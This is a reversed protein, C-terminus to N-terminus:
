RGVNSTDRLAELMQETIAQVRAHQAAALQRLTPVDPRNDVVARLLDQNLAHLTKQASSLEDLLKLAEEVSPRKSAM